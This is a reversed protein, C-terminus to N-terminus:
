VGNVGLLEDLSMQGDFELRDATFEGGPPLGPDGHDFMVCYVLVCRWDRLFSDRLFADKVTGTVPRTQAEDLYADRLRM